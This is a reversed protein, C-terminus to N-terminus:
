RNRLFVINKLHKVLSFIMFFPIAPYLKHRKCYDIYMNMEGKRMMWRNDSIGGRTLPKRNLSCLPMNLFWVGFAEATRLIFDHDEALAMKENFLIGNYSSVGLAPTVIPNKLLVDDASFMKLKLPSGQWQNAWKGPANGAMNFSHGIARINNNQAICLGIIAIKQPHFVDDADLFLIWSSRVSMMGRNRSFSPGHNEENRLYKVLTPDFSQVIAPTNDTSADDIVIIEAPLVTQALCSHIAGAIFKEGNYVPIIVSFSPQNDSM